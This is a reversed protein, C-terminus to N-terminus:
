GNTEHQDIKHTSCSTVAKIQVQCQSQDKCQNPSSILIKNNYNIVNRTRSNMDSLLMYIFEGIAYDVKSRAYQLTKQFRRIDKPINVKKNVIDEFNNLFTRQADLNRSEIGVIQGRTSTQSTLILYAYDRVSESLKQLGLMTLGDSKEIIWRSFSNENIYSMGPKGTEWARSQWTSFYKQNRWKTLDNIVGYESCIGRFKEHNYPNNYQNFSNEYPPPIELIKLIRISRIMPEKANLHEVSVGCASSACFVVFNLQSQWITFKYHDWDKFRQDEVRVEGLLYNTFVNPFKVQFSDSHGDNEAVTINQIYLVKASMIQLYRGGNPKYSADPNYRYIRDM